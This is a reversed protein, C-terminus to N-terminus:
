VSDALQCSVHAATWKEALARVEDPFFGSPGLGKQVFTNSNTLVKMIEQKPLDGTIERLSRWTKSRFHVLDALSECHDASNM